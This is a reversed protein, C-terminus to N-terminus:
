KPLKIVLVVGTMDAAFSMNVYGNNDKFRASELIYGLVDDQPISSELDGIGSAFFDGAVFTVAKAGAYTNNDLVLYRCEEEYAFRMTNAPNIAEGGTIVLDASAVNMTIEIPTLTTVAM